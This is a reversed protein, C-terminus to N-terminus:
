FFNAFFPCVRKSHSRQLCRSQTGNISLRTEQAKSKTGEERTETAELDSSGSESEM